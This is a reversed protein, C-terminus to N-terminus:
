GIYRSLILKYKKENTKLQNIIDDKDRITNMLEQYDTEFKIKENELLKLHESFKKIVKQQAIVTKELKDKKIHCENKYTPDIFFRSRYIIEGDDSKIYTPITMKSSGNKLFIKQNGLGNFIGGEYFAEDDGNITIYKVWCHKPFKYPLSIEECNKLSLRIYNLDTSM